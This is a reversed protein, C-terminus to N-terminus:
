KIKQVFKEKFFIVQFTSQIMIASQHYLERNKLSIGNVLFYNKINKEIERM